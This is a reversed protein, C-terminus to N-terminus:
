FRSDIAVVCAFGLVMLVVFGVAKIAGDRWEQPAAEIWTAVFVLPFLTAYLGRCWVARLQLSLHTM